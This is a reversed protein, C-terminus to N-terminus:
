QSAVKIRKAPANKNTCETFAHDVDAQSLGCEVQLWSRLARQDLRNAPKSIDATLTYLDGSVLTVSTGIDMDIVSQVADDLTDSLGLAASKAAASRTKFYAECETTVYLEHLVPDINSTTAPCAHGNTKGVKDLARHLKARMMNVDHSM